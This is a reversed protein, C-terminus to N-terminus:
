DGTVLKVVGVFALVVTLGWGPYFTVNVLFEQVPGISAPYSGSFMSSGDSAQIISCIVFVAVAGGLALAGVARNENEGPNSAM